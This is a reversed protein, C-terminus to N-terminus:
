EFEFQASIMATNDPQEKEPKGYLYAAWLNLGIGESIPIKFEVRPGYGLHEFWIGGIGLWETPEYSIRHEFYYGSGDADTSDEFVLAVYGLETTLDIYSGLRGSSVKSDEGDFWERGYGAGIEIYETPAVFLGGYLQQFLPGNLTKQGFIFPGVKEGYSAFVYVEEYKEKTGDQYRSETTRPEIFGYAGAHVAFSFLLLTAALFTKM